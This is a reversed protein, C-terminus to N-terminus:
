YRGQEVTPSAHILRLTYAKSARLCSNIYQSFKKDMVLVTAPIVSFSAYCATKTLTHWIYHTNADIHNHMGAIVGYPIWLASLFFSMVPIVKLRKAEFKNSTMRVDRIAHRISLNIFRLTIITTINLTTNCITMWLSIVIIPVKSASEQQPSTNSSNHVTTTNWCMIDNENRQLVKWLVSPCNTRAFVCFDDLIIILWLAVVYSTVIAIVWISQRTSIKETKSTITLYRETTICAFYHIVLSFTLYLARSQIFNSVIALGKDEFRTSASIISIPIGTFYTRHDSSEDCSLCFSAVPYTARANYLGSNLM